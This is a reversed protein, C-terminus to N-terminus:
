TVKRPYRLVAVLKGLLDYSGGTCFPQGERHRDGGASALLGYRTQMHKLFKMREPETLYKEYYVEMGAPLTGTSEFGGSCEQRVLWSFEEILLEIEKENMSYGYPHALIPIGGSAIVQHIVDKMPAYRIYRTSPIYYPSFNGIQHDFAAEIDKEIGKRVLVRAIDHRGIHKGKSKAVIVEDMTIHINRTALDDLIACIYAEKGDGIESFIEEFDSDNVGNPFIGVVHIETTEEWAPVYYEASFEIGPIVQVGESVFPETYTFVNHDTIAIASLGAEKACHIVEDPSQEGDSNTSHVHLDVLKANNNVDGMKYSM